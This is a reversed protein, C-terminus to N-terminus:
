TTDDPRLVFNLFLLLFLAKSLHMHWFLPQLGNRLPRDDLRVLRVPLLLQWVVLGPLDRRRPHRLHWRFFRTECSHHPSHHHRRRHLHRSLLQVRHRLPRHLKRVLRIQPTTNTHPIISLIFPVYQSCCNGFTSGSCTKGGQVGCTGDTSVSGGPTTPPDLKRRFCNTFM